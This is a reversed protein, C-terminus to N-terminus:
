WGPVPTATVLLSQVIWGQLGDNTRIQAWLVNGDRATGPLVEVLSGNLLSILIKGGIKPESRIYAGNFSQANIIAWVPTPAPTATQTYTATPILTNTPTLTVGPPLPTQTVVPAQTSAPSNTASLASPPSPKQPTPVAATPSGMFAPPILVQGRLATWVSGLGILVTLSCLAISTGLSYGFFSLPRLGLFGLVLMGVLVAASLTVTFLLVGQPFLGANRTVLGLGAASLPLYLLYALAAGPLISRQETRVYMVTTLVVALVGTFVAAWSFQLQDGALALPLPLGPWYSAGIGALCGAGFVLGAGVLTGAFSRLFFRGSGAVTALSLGIVPALFPALAAGLVLLVVSDLALGAALVLGALFSLLFFDVPPSARRALSDLQAARGDFAAMGFPAISRRGRRRRAPQLQDPDDPIPESTPLSMAAPPQPASLIKSLILPPHAPRLDQSATRGWVPYM